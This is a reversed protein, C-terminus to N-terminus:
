EPNKKQFHTGFSDLVRPEQWGRPGRSGSSRRRRRSPTTERDAFLTLSNRRRSDTFYCLIRIRRREARESCAPPRAPRSRESGARELGWAGLESSRDCAGPAERRRPARSCPPNKIKGKEAFECGRVFNRLRRPRGPRSGPERAWRAPSAPAVAPSGRLAQAPGPLAQGLRAVGPIRGAADVQRAPRVIARPPGSSVVAASPPRRAPAGLRM